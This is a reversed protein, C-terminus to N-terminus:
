HKAIQQSVSRPKQQQQKKKIAKMLRKHEQKHTRWHARQCETGCYDVAKCPCGMTTSDTNLPTHCQACQKTITPNNTKPNPTTKTAKKERKMVELIKIACENNLEAGRATYEIAKDMCQDVGIGNCYMAGLNTLAGPHNLSAARTLVEVMQQSQEPELKEGRDLKEYFIGGLYVMANANGSAIAKELMNIGKSENKPVGQGIYTMMALDTVAWLNKKKVWKKLSKVIKGTKKFSATHANCLPCRNSGQLKAHDELSGGKALTEKQWCENHFGKGCCLWRKIEIRETFAIPDNNRYLQERCFECCGPDIQTPQQM